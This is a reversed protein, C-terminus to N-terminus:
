QRSHPCIAPGTLPQLSVGALCAQTFQNLLGSPLSFATIKWFKSGTVMFLSLLVICLVGDPSSVGECLAPYHLTEGHGQGQLSCELSKVCLGQHHVDMGPKTAFAEVTLESSIMQVFSLHVLLTIGIFRGWGRRVVSFKFLPPPSIM